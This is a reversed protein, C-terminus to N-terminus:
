LSIRMSEGLTAEPTTGLLQFLCSSSDWSYYTAGGGPDSTYQTIGGRAFNLNSYGRFQTLTCSADGTALPISSASVIWDLPSPPTTGLVIPLAGGGVINAEAKAADKCISILFNSITDIDENTPDYAYLKELGKGVARIMRPLDVDNLGGHLQGNGLGNAAYIKSVRGINIVQQTTRAM